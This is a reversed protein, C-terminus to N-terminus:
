GFCSCNSLSCIIMKYHDVSQSNDTFYAVPAYRNLPAMWIFVRILDRPAGNDGWDFHTVFFEIKPQGAIEIVANGAANAHDVAITAALAPALSSASVIVVLLVALTSTIVFKKKLKKVELSM